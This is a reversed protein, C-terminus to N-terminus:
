IKFTKRMDFEIQKSENWSKTPRYYGVVRSYIETEGGCHPCDKQEGSLYGHHDCTSFTPTLSFYPLKYNECVKRVLTKAVYPDRIEEGLFLHIVTGGTYKTQLEDQLDLLEFVDHTYNVPLHTSNTYFPIDDNESASIIDPYSKRDKLALTYATSEAPTAELNFMENTEEQFIVLKERIFDMVRVAFEKGKETGIDFEKGFLNLCAENMGNIGITNFHNTWWNGTKAKVHRLYFASYPYMGKETFATITKRKIHCCEKAKALLHDLRLFFDEETDAEYGIRPLNITVVNLSGTLPNAGFLGGGRKRLEKNDLRLRCNHTILGNALQFYPEGETVSFCYAKAGTSISTETNIQDVKFWVYDDETFFVEAYETRSHFKCTYVPDTGLRGVRNDGKLDVLFGLGLLSCLTSFDEVLGISSTYVRGRNGGDTNYWGYLLGQLFDLGNNWCYSNIRKEKAVGLEVYQKMWVMPTSERGGIRVSVQDNNTTESVTFGLAEFTTKLLKAVLQKKTSNGLSYVLSGSDISGDGVYAGVVFGLNFLSKTNEIPSTSFPLYMGEVIDQAIINEIASGKSRKIPQLHQGEMKVYTGNSLVINHFSKAPIEIITSKQWKGKHLTEYTSGKMASYYVERINRKAIGKSSRVLVPTDGHLPCMSRADEPDMDSNIFNSFYPIGYKGAMRWINDYAENDWDFDKGINYTPIPFTFVRGASDGETMVECFAKNIMDMEKQFESYTKDKYEGGVVVPMDKHTSPVQLDLTINSFVAQFGVRTPINMNFIFEQIAQKVQKYSLNDYYVFPALLTDFNSVAQAGAAEGQLTYLANVLQGLATRLHKPPKSSLKTPVGTFGTLIFDELSWGCCYAAIMGLDHIHFAGTKHLEAIDKPYVHNLWYQSSLENNLYNHLGQLSYTTNSNEKVKWDAEGVYKGILDIHFTSVLERTRRREDRYLMYAKATEKYETNFLVREVIDQIQEISFMEINKMAQELEMKQLVVKSILSAIPREFEETAKGAKTIAAEIKTADFDVISGNRKAVKEFSM